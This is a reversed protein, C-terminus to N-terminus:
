LKMEKYHIALQHGFINFDVWNDSSRGEKCGLINKYFNRSKKLNNVPIALHFPLLKNTKM